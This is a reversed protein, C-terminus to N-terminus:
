FPTRCIPPRRSLHMRIDASKRSVLAWPRRATHMKRRFYGFENLLVQISSPPFCVESYLDSEDESSSPEDPDDEGESASGTSPEPTEPMVERGEDPELDSVVVGFYSKERTPSEVQPIQPRHGFPAEWKHLRQPPLNVATTVHEPKRHPEEVPATAPTDTPPRPINDEKPLRPTEQEQEEVIIPEPIETAADGHEQKEAELKAREREAKRKKVWAMGSSDDEDNGFSSANTGNQVVKWASGMSSNTNSKNSGMGGYGWEVFEPETNRATSFPDISAQSYPRKRGYVRGNLMRMGPKASPTYQRSPLPTSKSRHALPNLSSSLSPSNKHRRSQPRGGDSM